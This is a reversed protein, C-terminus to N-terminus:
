EDVFVFRVIIGAAKLLLLGQEVIEQGINTDVFFIPYDSGDTEPVAPSVAMLNVLTGPAHDHEFIHTADIRLQTNTIRNYFRISDEQASNGFDFVLRGGTSPFDSVDDFDLTAYNVGSSISTSLLATTSYLGLSTGSSRDYLFSGPWYPDSTSSPDGAQITSDAHFHHSWLLQDTQVNLTRPIRVILENPNIEHLSVKTSQIKDTTFGLISNATGGTIQITGAIGFTRTAISVYVDGGLNDSNVFATVYEPSFANIKNVVEQATAAGPTAFDATVFTVIVTHKEDIELELSEGGSLNFTETNTTTVTSHLYETGWFLELVQYISKKVQKPAFSTLPIFQRFLDDSFPTITPRTVGLNSALIDLFQGVATGVFLQEKANQAQTDIRTNEAAFADLLATINRNYGPSYYRPVGKYIRDNRNM